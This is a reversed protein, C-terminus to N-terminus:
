QRGLKDARLDKVFEGHEMLTWSDVFRGQGHSQEGHEKDDLYKYRAWSGSKRNEHIWLGQRLGDRFSGETRLGDSGRFVWRGTPKGARMTGTARVSYDYLKQWTLTGVGEARGESCRKNWKWKGSDVWFGLPKWAVCGAPKELELWCQDTASITGDELGVEDCDKERAAEAAEAEVRKRAAEAEARAREEAAKQREVRAEADAKARQARNLLSLADEYRAVGRGVLGLYETVDKIAEDHDAAGFLNLEARLFRFESPLELDHEECLERVTVLALHVSLWDKDVRAEPAALLQRDLEVEPPLQAPLAIGLLAVCLTRGVPGLNM